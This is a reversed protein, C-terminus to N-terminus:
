EEGNWYGELTKKLKERARNIRSKVTGERCGVTEAIEAYSWGEIDRLVLPVRYHLPLLEIAARVRRRIEESILESDQRAEAARGDVRLKPVVAAWRHARRYQSRVLNTATTFLYSKTRPEVPFEDLSRFLRLFAEQAAEEARDRDSTLNYLYNVLVDKHAEVFTEFQARLAVESSSDALPTVLSMEAGSAAM